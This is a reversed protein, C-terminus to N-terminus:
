ELWRVVRQAFRFLRSEYPPFFVRALAPERQRVVPRVHSMTIFGHYGHYSGQGSDGVGGFPLDSGIYHLLTNNVM